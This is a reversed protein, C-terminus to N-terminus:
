PQSPPAPPLPPVGGPPLPAFPPALVVLSAVEQFGYCSQQDLVPVFSPRSQQAPDRRLAAVLAEPDRNWIRGCALFFVARDDDSLAADGTDDLRECERQAFARAVDDTKSFRGDPLSHALLRPGPHSIGNMGCADTFEWRTPLVLDPRGDQDADELAIAGELGVAGEYRQVRGARTSYLEVVLSREGEHQWREVSVAVETAGDGDWDFQRLITADVRSMQGVELDFAHPRAAPRARADLPALRGVYGLLDDSQRHPDALSIGWAISAPACLGDNLDLPVGSPMADIIRQARRAVAANEVALRACARTAAASAPVAAGARAVLPRASVEFPQVPAFRRARLRLPAPAARLADLADGLSAVPLRLARSRSPAFSRAVEDMSAGWALACYGAATVVYLRRALETESEQEDARESEQSFALPLTPREPCLGRLAARTLPDDVDLLGDARRHAIVVSAGQERRDARDGLVFPPRARDVRGDRDVDSDEAHARFAPPDREPAVSAWTEDSVSADARDIVASVSPAADPAPRLAALTPTSLPRACGASLALLALACSDKRCLM